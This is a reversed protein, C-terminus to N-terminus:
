YDFLIRFCIFYIFVLLFIDYKKKFLGFGGEMCLCGFLLLFKLILMVLCFLLFVGIKFYMIFYLFIFIM